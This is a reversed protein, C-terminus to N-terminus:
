QHSSLLSALAISAGSKQAPAPHGTEKGTGGLSPYPAGLHRTVQIARLDERLKQKPFSGHGVPGVCQVPADRWGARWRPMSPLKGVVPGPSSPRRYHAASPKNWSGGPSTATDAVGAPAADRGVRM